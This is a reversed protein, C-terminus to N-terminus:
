PLIIDTGIGCVQFIKEEVNGNILAWLLQIAQLTDSLLSVALTQLDLSPNAETREEVKKLM